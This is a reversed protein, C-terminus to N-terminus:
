LDMRKPPVSMRGSRTQYGNRTSEMPRSTPETRNQHHDVIPPRTVSATPINDYEIPEPLKPGTTPVIHRRNRRVGGTPTNVVYSRPTPASKVVEGRTGSDKIWVRDGPNLPALNRVRHRHDYNRKQNDCLETEKDKVETLYPWKSILTEPKVPVKTRIQRDMCLEAPSHGRSLPTARYSM